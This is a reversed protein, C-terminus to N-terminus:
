NADRAVKFPLAREKAFKAVQRPDDSQVAVALMEYGRPAYKRWTEVMKPIERVCDACWTAWFNVLVVKGRLEATSVTEGSLTAFRVYPAPAPKLSVWAAWAAIAIAAAAVIIRKMRVAMTAATRMIEVAGASAWNSSMVDRSAVAPSRAASSFPLRVATAVSPRVSPKRPLGRTRMGSGSDACRASRRIRRKPM